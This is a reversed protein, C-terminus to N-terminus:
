RKLTEARPQHGDQIILRVSPKTIRCLERLFPAPQEIMHFVDLAYVLDATHDPLGSDYGRAEVPTVNALGRKKIKRKAKEIAVPHTDVAYVRGDPGVAGSAGAIYRAPGCGYDVVTEGRQIGLTGLTKDAHRGLLDMLAMVLTMLHFAGSPIHERDKGALRQGLTKPAPGPNADGDFELHVIRNNLRNKVAPILAPWRLWKWRKRYFDFYNFETVFRISGHFAEVARGSTIGWKFVARTHNVTAHRHSRAALFPTMMEFLMRAGPFEDALHGMLTKVEGPDFYMLLGEAIILVRRGEPHIDGTWSPDLVSAATIRYRSHHTKRESEEQLLLVQRRLEIVRPLDLDIWSIRGNDLRFFRTDLGCGLNIILGDPYQSIFRGAERDLIATRVAVGTQSLWAGDFKGFDYDMRELIGAAREDRVIPDPEM